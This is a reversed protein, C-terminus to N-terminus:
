GMGVDVKVLAGDGDVLLQGDRIWAIMFYAADGSNFRLVRVTSDGNRGGASTAASLSYRSSRM